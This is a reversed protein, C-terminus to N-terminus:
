PREAGRHVVQQLGTFSLSATPPLAKALPVSEMAPAASGAVPAGNVTRSVPMREPSVGVSRLPWTHGGGARHVAAQM